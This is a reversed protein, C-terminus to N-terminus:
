RKRVAAIAACAVLGLLWTAPEPVAGGGGAAPSGFQSKWVTYDGGDVTGPVDTENALPGGKRWIVYDAADVAGDDNYDGALGEPAVSLDSYVVL